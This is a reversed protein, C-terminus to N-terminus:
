NMSVSIAVHPKHSLAGRMAGSLVETPRALLAGSPVAMSDPHSQSMTTMYFLCVFAEMQIRDWRRRETCGQAESLVETIDLDIM